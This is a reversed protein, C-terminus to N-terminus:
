PMSASHRGPLSRIPHGDSAVVLERNRELGCNFFIEAENNTCLEWRKTTNARSWMEAM